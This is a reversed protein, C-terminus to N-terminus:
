FYHEAEAAEEGPISSHLAKIINATGHWGQLFQSTATYRHLPGGEELGARGLLGLSTKVAVDCVLQNTDWSSSHKGIFQSTQAAFQKVIASEMDVDPYEAVDRLGATLYLMSELSYLRSEMESLQLKVLSFKSLPLGFQKSTNCHEM